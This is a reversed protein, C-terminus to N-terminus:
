IMCLDGEKGVIDKCRLKPMYGLFLGHLKIM